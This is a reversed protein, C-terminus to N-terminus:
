DDEDDNDDEWEALFEDEYQLWEASDYPPYGLGALTADIHEARQVALQRTTRFRDMLTLDRLEKEIVHREAYFPRAKALRLGEATFRIKPM